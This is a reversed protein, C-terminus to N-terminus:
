WRFKNMYRKKILVQEQAENKTKLSFGKLKSSEIIERFLKNSFNNATQKKFASLIIFKISWVTRLAENRIFVPNEKKTKRKGRKSVQYNMRVAPTAYILSIRWLNVSDKKCEKQIKKLSKMLHLEGTHKKGTKMIGNIIKSKLEKNYKLRLNKM